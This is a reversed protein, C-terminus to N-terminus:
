SIERARFISIRPPIRRILLVGGTVLARSVAVRDVAAQEKHQLDGMPFIGRHTYEEEVRTACEKEFAEREAPTIPNCTRWSEDTTAALGRETRGDLRTPGFWRRRSTPRGTQVIMIVPRGIREVPTLTRIRDRAAAM